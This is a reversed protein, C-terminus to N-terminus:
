RPDPDDYDDRPQRHASVTPRTRRVISTVVVGGVLGMLAGILFGGTLYLHLDPPNRGVAIWVLAALLLGLGIAVAFVGGFITTPKVTRQPPQLYYMVLGVAVPGGAFVGALALLWLTQADMNPQFRFSKRRHTAVRGAMTASGRLGIWNTFSM